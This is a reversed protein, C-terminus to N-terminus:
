HLVDVGGKAGYSRWAITDQPKLGANVISLTNYLFRMIAEEVHKKQKIVHEKRVDYRFFYIVYFGVRCPHFRSPKTVAVFFNAVDAVSKVPKTAPHGVLHM